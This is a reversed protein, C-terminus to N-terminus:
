PLSGALLQGEGSLVIDRIEAATAGCRGEQGLSTGACYGSQCSSVPCFWGEQYYPEVGGGIRVCGQNSAPMPCAALDASPTAAGTTTDPTSTECPAICRPLNAPPNSCCGSNPTDCFYGPGLCACDASTQCLKVDCTSPIKGCRLDGEASQVCLCTQEQNCYQRDGCSSAKTCGQPVTTPPPCEGTTSPASTPPPCGGTTTPGTTPPPQSTTPESSTPGTTPPRPLPRLAPPQLRTTSPAQPAYSTPTSGGASVAVNPESSCAGVGLSVLLGGSTWKTLLKLAQRRSTVAGLQRTMFDFREPDM